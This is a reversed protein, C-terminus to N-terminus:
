KMPNVGKVNRCILPAIHECHSFAAQGRRLSKKGTPHIESVAWVCRGSLHLAPAAKEKGLEITARPLWRM